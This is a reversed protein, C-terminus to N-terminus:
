QGGRQQYNTSAKTISNGAKGCLSGTYDASGSIKGCTGKYRGYRKGGKRNKIINFVREHVLAYSLYAILSLLLWEGGVAYYGREVYAIPIIVAGFVATIALAISIEFVFVALIM